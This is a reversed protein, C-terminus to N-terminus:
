KIMVKNGDVIYIGKRPKMVRRGQLDYYLNSKEGKVDETLNEIGDLDFDWAIAFGKVTTSTLTTYPIYARNAAITSGNSLLYFGVVKDEGVNNRGLTLYMTADSSHDSTLPVYTGEFINNVPVDVDSMDDDDSITARVTQSAAGTSTGVLMVPTDKPVRRGLEDPKIYLVGGANTAQNEALMTYAMAETDDGTPLTINFPMKATAYVNTRGNLDTAKNLTLDIKDVKVIYWASASNASGSWNTLNGATGAGSSHGATHMVASNVSINYQANGLSTFVTTGPEAALSGSVTSNIASMYREANPSYISPTSANIYFISNVNDSANSAVSWEIRDAASNYYITPATSNWLDYANVFRYYGDTLAIVASEDVATLADNVLAFPYTSPVAFADATLATRLGILDNKDALTAIASKTGVAGVPADLLVTNLYNLHYQGSPFFRCSSGEDTDNWGQIKQSQENLYYDDGDLKFCYSNSISSNEANYLKFANHDDTGSVYSVTNGTTAKRITKKNGGAKNYIKFGDYPNGIFCWLHNDTISAFATQAIVPTQIEGSAEDYCWTYNNDSSHMDVIYWTASAFSPSIEFPGNWTATVIVESTGEAITAPEYTFTVFDNDLAAPVVAPGRNVTETARDVELGDYMLVFTVTNEAFRDLAETPDFYDAEVIDFLTGPDPSEGNAWTQLQYSSMNLYWSTEPWNLKWKGTHTVSNADTVGAAHISLAIANDPNNTLTTATGGGSLTAPKSVFKSESVSWLYYSGNDVSDDTDDYYIFAFQKKVDTSRSTSTAANATSSVYTGDNDVCFDGRDYYTDVNNIYYCKNNSLGGLSTITVPDAVTVTVDDDGAAAIAAAAEAAQYYLTGGITYTKGSPLTFSDSGDTAVYITTVADGGNVAVASSFTVTKVPIFKFYSGYDIANHYGVFNNSITYSCVYTDYATAKLNVYTTTEYDEPQKSGTPADVINFTEAEAADATNLGEIANGNQSSDTPPTIYRDGGINHFKWKGAAAVAEWVYTPNLKNTGDTSKWLRNPNSGDSTNSYIYYRNTGGGQTWTQQLRFKKTLDVIQSVTISGHSSTVSRVIYRFRYTGSAAINLYYDRNSQANGSYGDHYDSAVVNDSGDLVDVGYFDLRNNGSSYQFRVKYAGATLAVGEPNIRYYPNTKGSVAAPIGGPVDGTLATWNDASMDSAINWTNYDDFVSEVVFTSGGDAGGTWYALNATSRQNLAAGGSQRNYLYFGNTRNASNKPFWCKTHQDSSAELNAHTNGGSDGDSTPDASVLIYSSGAAKNYLTFGTYPNGVFAWLTNNNRANSEPLTVNPTGESDYTPYYGNKLNLYYWKASAFNSSFTFPGDWIYKVYVTSSAAPVTTIEHEDALDSNNYFKYTCYDRELSAPLALTEGAVLNADATALENGAGDQISFTVTVPNLISLARPLDNFNGVPCIYFINGPDADASAINLGEPDSVSSGWSTLCIRQSNNDNFKISFTNAVGTFSNDQITIPAPNANDIVADSGSPKLFGNGEVSWLYYKDDNYIIAFKGESYAEAATSRLKGDGFGLLGRQATIAYVKNNSLSALDTIPLRSQALTPDFDGAELIQAANGNDDAYQYHYIHPNYDTAVGFYNGSITIVHPQHAMYKASTSATLTLPSNVVPATSLELKKSPTSTTGEYRDIRWYVYKQAAVSYLYYDGNFPIIAFQQKKDSLSPDICLGYQADGANNYASSTSNVTTAGDGVAWWGRQNAIAYKKTASSSALSALSPAIPELSMSMYRIALWNGVSAGTCRITFSATYDDVNDYYFTYSSGDTVSQSNGNVTVTYPYDSSVAQVTMTISSIKYGLEAPVNITVTEDEDVAETKMTLCKQSWYTGRDFEPATITINPLGSTAGTTFVDPTSSGNDTRTGYVDYPNNTNGGDVITVRQNGFMALAATADFDAAEIIANRNGEDLTSWSDILIYGNSVNINKNAINKFNFFWPYTANGTATISVQEADTPTTTLRNNAMLYKGANVSFLYYEGDKYILAIRQHADDYNTSAPTVANMGTGIETGAFNWTGRANAIVYSKTNATPLSAISTYPTLTVQMAHLFLGSNEGALTFSTSAKRIGSVSLSNGKGTFGVASGGEAPTVTQTNAATIANGFLKYGTIVYGAPATLTYTATKATGSRIDLGGAPKGSSNNINAASSTLTFAPSTGSTWTDKWNGSAMTGGLDDGTCYGTTSSTEATAKYYPWWATNGNENGYPYEGYNYPDSTGQHNIALRGQCVPYAGDTPTNSSLFVIYYTTGGLLDVGDSFNYTHLSGTSGSPTVANDSIAVVHNASLTSSATTRAIAIYNNTGGNNANGGLQMLQLSTFSYTTSATGPTHVGFWKIGVKGGSTAEWGEKSEWTVSEARLESIASGMLMLMSCLFLYLKKM